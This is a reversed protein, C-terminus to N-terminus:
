PIDTGFLLRDDAVFTDMAAMNSEYGSLAYEYYFKKFDELVASYEVHTYKDPYHAALHASLMAVRAALM